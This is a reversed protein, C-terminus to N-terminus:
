GRRSPRRAVVLSLDDSQVAMWRQVSGLIHQCIDAATREHVRALEDALRELGFLRGSPDRAETVGDTHLLLIDGEDLALQADRTERRVDPLIGLWVGTLEVQECRGSRARWILLPEHAGAYVIQGTAQWRLLGFTAHDEQGLRARVNQHVAANISAVLEAPSADPAHRVLAAVMSQLMMMVLGAGLGHGSVDGIGFWAGGRIPLIDYYDGGVNVAPVMAAAVDIGEVLPARPLLMTQIREAIRIEREAQEKEALQRRRSETVVQAMLAGAKLAGSIQDRLAEYILTTRVSAAFVVFGFQQAEFFLPEIVYSARGGGFLLGAPALELSEFRRGQAAAFETRHCHWAAQMCAQGMPDLPDDHLALAFGEIGVAPVVRMLVDGVTAIDFAASLAESSEGLARMQTAAELRLQGQALEATNGIWSRLQARIGELAGLRLPQEAAWAHVTRLMVELVASWAPLDVKRSRIVEGFAATFEGGPELELEAMLMDFLALATPQEFRLGEQALNAIARQFRQRLDAIPTTFTVSDIALPRREASDELNCGCSRRLVLTPVLTLLPPVPAGEIQEVALQMAAMGMTEFPQRVTTLQPTAFRAEETDDFGVIALDRPVRVGREQLAVMLGLAMLDNAAAVGQIDGRRQLVQAAALSGSSRTFDGQFVLSPDFPIGHDDLVGRYAAYRREAEDNGPPGRLFGVRRMGHHEVLHEIVDRMGRQNDIVVSPHGDLPYAMCVLPLPRYHAVYHALRDLGIEVALTGASIVVADFARASVLDYLVNRRRWLPDSTGLIGGTMCVFNADFDEAAHALSQLVSSQYADRLSDILLAITRRGKGAGASKM